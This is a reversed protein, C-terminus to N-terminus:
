LDEGNLGTPERDAHTIAHLEMFHQRLERPIKDSLPAAIGRHVGAWCLVANTALGYERGARAPGRYRTNQLHIGTPHEAMWSLTELDKTTNAMMRPQYKLEVVGIIQKSDCILIDPKRQIADAGARIAPEIFVSRLVNDREFLALLDAVLFAQLGRESNIQRACYRGTITHRWAEKLHRRLLTRGQM